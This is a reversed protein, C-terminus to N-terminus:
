GRPCDFYSGSEASARSIWIAGGTVGNARLIGRRPMRRVITTKEVHDEGRRSRSRQDSEREPQHAAPPRDEGRWQKDINDADGLRMDGDARAGKGDGHVGKDIEDAM